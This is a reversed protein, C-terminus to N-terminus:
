IEEESEKAQCRRMRDIFDQHNRNGVDLLEFHLDIVEPDDIEMGFLDHISKLGDNVILYLDGTNNIYCRQSANEYENDGTWHLYITYEELHEQFDEDYYENDTLTLCVSTIDKWKTLRDFAGTIREPDGTEFPDRVTNADRHIEVAFDYCVKQEMVCNCAVRSISTKIDSINIYGIYYGPISIVECNELVFDIQKIIM